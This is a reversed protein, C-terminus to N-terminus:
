FYSELNESNIEFFDIIICHFSYYFYFLFIYILFRRNVIFIM